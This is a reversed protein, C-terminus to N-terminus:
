FYGAAETCARLPADPPGWLRLMGDRDGKTETDGTQSQSQVAQGGAGESEWM